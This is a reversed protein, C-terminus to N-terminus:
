AATGNLLREFAAIPVLIRGGIRITPLEGRHAAQYSAATGLGRKAGAERVSYTLRGAQRDKLEESM